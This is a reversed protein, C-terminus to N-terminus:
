PNKPGVMEDDKVNHDWKGRIGKFIVIGGGALLAISLATMMLYDQTKQACKVHVASGSSYDFCQDFNDKQVEFQSYNSSAMGGIMFGAFIIAAGIMILRIDSMAFM